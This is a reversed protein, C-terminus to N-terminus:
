DKLAKAALVETLKGQMKIKVIQAAQDLKQKSDLLYAAYAEIKFRTTEVKDIAKHITSIRTDEGFEEVAKQHEAILAELGETVADQVSKAGHKTGEPVPFRNLRGRLREVFSQVKDVFGAHQDPVFYVSGAARVPFLDAQKEFLRKIVRTIDATTRNETAKALEQKAHETLDATQEPTLVNSQVEIFGTDKELFLTAEFDYHFREDSSDLHEKTFQFALKGQAEGVCRIIREETMKRAARAFAYRPLLERAVKSDLDADKLAQELAGYTVTTNADLDWTIIEGLLQHTSKGFNAAFDNLNRAVFAAGNVVASVGNM